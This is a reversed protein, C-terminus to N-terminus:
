LADVFLVEEFTSGIQEGAENEKQFNLKGFTTVEGDAAGGGFGGLDGELAVMLGPLVESFKGFGFPVM